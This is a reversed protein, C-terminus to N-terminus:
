RKAVVDKIVEDMHFYQLWRKESLAVAAIVFPIALYAVGFLVAVWLRTTPEWPMFLCLALPVLIAGGALVGACAVMGCVAILSKRVARLTEVDSLAARLRAVRLAPRVLSELAVDLVATLLRNM